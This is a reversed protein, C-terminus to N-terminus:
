PEEQLVLSVPRPIQNPAFRMIQVKIPDQIGKLQLEDRERAPSEWGAASMASESVVCEGQKALSALRAATNVEDGLATINHIGGPGSVSGFYANGVHVGVGVPIWPGEPHAHGTAELIDLGAKIALQIYDSGSLGAGFFAIVEDGGLRDIFASAEILIRTAVRYFKEIEASFATPSLKESLQTSGRIDAFLMGMQVEAGGGFTAAFQDCINCYAPNHPSQQKGYVVKVLRAGVGHFPANCFTCRPDTPLLSLIRKLRTESPPPGEEFWSRWFATIEQKTPGETVGVEM